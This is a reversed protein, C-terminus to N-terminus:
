FDPDWDVRVTRADLDVADVVGPVFPILRERGGQVVLVDNAGTSFLHSVVGLESGDLTLVKLGELDAWYYEGAKAQPLQERAVWIETGVAAAAADRDAIGPLQAVVGKGQERGKVGAVERSADGHKLLWPAYRFINSRPETYSHLKVWGEVGFVGVVKGVLVLRGTM